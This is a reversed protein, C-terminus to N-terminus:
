EKLISLAYRLYEQAVVILQVVDDTSFDRYTEVNSGICDDLANEALTLERVAGAVRTRARSAQM